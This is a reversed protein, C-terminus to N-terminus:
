RLSNRKEYLKMEKNLVDDRLLFDAWKLNNDLVLKECEHLDSIYKNIKNEIYPYVEDVGYKLVLSTLEYFVIGIAHTEVHVTACGQGVAHCLAIDYKDTIEKAYGHVKLLARKAEPMKVEGRSWAKCLNLANDFCEENPYKEKLYHVIEDIQMFAWLVLTRHKETCILALLDQLCISDRSFLIQNKKKLKIKIEEITKEKM